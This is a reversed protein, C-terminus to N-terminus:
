YCSLFWFECGKEPPTFITPFLGSLQLVVCCLQLQAALYKPCNSAACGFVSCHSFIIKNLRSATSFSCECYRFGITSLKDSLFFFTKKWLLLWQNKGGLTNAYSQSSLFFSRYHLCVCPPFFTESHMRWCSQFTQWFMVLRQQLRSTQTIIPSGHDRKCTVACVWKTQATKNWFPCVALSLCWNQEELYMGRVSKETVRTCFM